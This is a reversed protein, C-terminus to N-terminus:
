ADQRASPSRECVRRRAAWGVLAVGLALLAGTGPEPIGTVTVSLTGIDHGPSAFAFLPMPSPSPAAGVGIVGLDILPAADPQVPPGPNQGPFAYFPLTPPGPNTAVLEGGFTLWLNGGGGSVDLDFDFSGARSSEWGLGGVRTETGPVPVPESQRSQQFHLELLGGLTYDAFSCSPDECPSPPVFSVLYDLRFSAAHGVGAATHLAAFGVLVITAVRSKPTM